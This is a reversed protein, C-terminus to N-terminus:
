EDGVRLLVLPGSSIPQVETPDTKSYLECDYVGSRAILTTQDAGLRVHVEGTAPTAGPELQVDADAPFGPDVKTDDVDVLVTGDPRNLVRFRAGNGALSVPNGLADKLRFVVRYTKGQRVTLV